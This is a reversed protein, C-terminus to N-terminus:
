WTPRVQYALLNRYLNRVAYGHLEPANTILVILARCVQVTGCVCTCVCTAMVCLVCYVRACTSRHSGVSLRCLANLQEGRGERICGSSDHGPYFAFCVCVCLRGHRSDTRGVMFGAHGHAGQHFRTCPIHCSCLCEVLFQLAHPLVSGTLSPAIM